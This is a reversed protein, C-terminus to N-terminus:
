DSLITRLTSISCLLMAHVHTCRTDKSVSFILDLTPLTRFLNLLYTFSELIVHELHTKTMILPSTTALAMQDAYKLTTRGELSAPLYHMANSVLDLVRSEINQEIM